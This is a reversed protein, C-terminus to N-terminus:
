LLLKQVDPRNLLQEISINSQIIQHYNEFLKKTIYSYADIIHDKNKAGTIIISGSEFVFISIKEMNKYIYKINVGAHACPEFTCEAGQQLLLKYLKERDVRFGVNLNSNIMRIKFNRIKLVDVNNPNTIFPKLEISNINKPNIIAKVKHLSNCLTILADLCNEISKCGTMQISGNKFLKINIKNKFNKSLIELTVQNYFVKKLKKKKKTKDKQPILSRICNPGTGYKVTVISDHSLDIYKGINQVNFETDMICTITITSIHLDKPLSDLNILPKLKKIAINLSSKQSNYNKSDSM